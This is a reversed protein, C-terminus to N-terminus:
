VYGYGKNILGNIIKSQESISLVIRRCVIPRESRINEYEKIDKNQKKYKRIFIWDLIVAICFLFLGMFNTYMEYKGSIFMYVLLSVQLLNCVVLTFLFIIHHNKSFLNKKLYETKELRARREYINEECIPKHIDKWKDFVAILNIMYLSVFGFLIIEMLFLYFITVIDPIQLTVIFYLFLSNMIVSFVAGLITILTIM